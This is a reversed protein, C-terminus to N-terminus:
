TTFAPLFLPSLVVLAFNVARDLEEASSYELEQLQEGTGAMNVDFEREHTILATVTRLQCGACKLVRARV